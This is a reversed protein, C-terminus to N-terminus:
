ANQIKTTKKIVYEYMLWASGEMFITFAGILYLNESYASLYAITVAIVVLVIAINFIARRKQKLMLDLMSFVNFATIIPVLAMIRLILVADANPEECLIPYIVFDAMAFIVVAGGFAVISFIKKMKKRFAAWQEENLKYLAVAKPYVANSVINFANRCQGIVRDSIAYAGLLNSHYHELAFIIVSQQLNASINNLTLSFNAKGITVLEKTSPLYLHLGFSRHFYILLSLYTAVNAMGLVFNIWVANNTGKVFFFILIVAFINAILNCRNFIKVKEIGIFFCLPNFVEALAVPVAFWLYNYHDPDFWYYASLALCFLMFMVARVGLANYIIVSLTAPENIYYATDRVGSQTTGYSVVTGALMAFRYAFLVLGIGDSGYRGTVIRITIVLLLINSVQISSLNFFNSLINTARLKSYYNNITSRM